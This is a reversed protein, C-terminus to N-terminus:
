VGRYPEGQALGAVEQQKPCSCRGAPLHLPLKWSDPEDESVMKRMTPRFNEDEAGPVEHVQQLRQHHAQGPQHGPCCGQLQKEQQKFICWFISWFHYILRLM